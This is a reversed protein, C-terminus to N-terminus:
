HNHPDQEPNGEWVGQRRRERRRQLHRQRREFRPAPQPPERPTQTPLPVPSTDRWDEDSDIPILPPPRMARHSPNSFFNDLEEELTQEDDYTSVTLSTEGGEAGAAM